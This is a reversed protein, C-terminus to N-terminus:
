GVQGLGFADFLTCSRHAIKIYLITRLYLEEYLLNRRHLMKVDRESEGTERKSKKFYEKNM